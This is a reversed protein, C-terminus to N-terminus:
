ARQLNEDTFNKLVGEIIACSAIWNTYNESSLTERFQVRIIESIVEIRDFREEYEHRVAIHVHFDAHNRDEPDQM